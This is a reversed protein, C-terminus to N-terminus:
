AVFALALEVVKQSLPEVVPEVKLVLALLDLVVEDEVLLPLVVLPLYGEAEAATLCAEAPATSHESLKYAVM